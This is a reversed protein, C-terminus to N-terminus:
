RAMGRIMLLMSYPFHTEFLNDYRRVVDSIAAALDRQEGPSLETLARRHQRSVILVEFPWTAWWPCVVVFSQNEFVVREQKKSELSAYDVLMNAGNREARYKALQEMEAAPEEPIGTTCWIQGHPHPNSCGMAAGKNEFIQMYDFQASTVPLDVSPPTSSLYLKASAALPSDPSTHLAYMQTWATVITSIQALGLDALTQNHASSFTLVYCRGTVGTARLLVSEADIAHLHAKAM